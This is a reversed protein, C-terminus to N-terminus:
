TCIHKPNFNGKYWALLLFTDILVELCFQSLPWLVIDNMLGKQHKEWNIVRVTPLYLTLQSILCVCLTHASPSDRPISTTYICGYVPSFGTFKFLQYVTNFAINAFNMTYTYM